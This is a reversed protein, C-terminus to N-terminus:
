DMEKQRSQHEQFVNLHFGVRKTYCHQEEQGCDPRAEGPGLYSGEPLTGSKGQAKQFQSAWIAEETGTEFDVGRQLRGVLSRSGAEPYEAPKCVASSPCTRIGILLGCGEM